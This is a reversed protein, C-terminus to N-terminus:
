LVEPPLEPWSGTGYKGLGPGEVHHVMITSNVGSAHHVGVRSASLERPPKTYLTPKDRLAEANVIEPHDARNILDVILDELRTVEM